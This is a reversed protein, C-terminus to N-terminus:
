PSSGGHPGDPVERRLEQIVIEATKEAVRPINTFFSQLDSEFEESRMKVMGRYRNPQYANYPCVLNMCESCYNGPVTSFNCGALRRGKAIANRMSSLVFQKMMSSPLVAVHGTIVRILVLSSGDWLYREIQDFPVGLSGKVELRITKSRGRSSETLDARTVEVDSIGFDYEVETCISSPIGEELLRRKLHDTIKLVAYDSKLKYFPDFRETSAERGPNRLIYDIRRECPVSALLKAVFATRPKTGSLLRHKSCLGWITELLQARLKNVDGESLLKVRADVPRIDSHEGSDDGAAKLVVM